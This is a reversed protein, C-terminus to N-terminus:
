GAAGAALARILAERAPPDTVAAMADRFAQVAAGHAALRSELLLNEAISAPAGGDRVRRDMESLLSYYADKRERLALWAQWAAVAEPPLEDDQM